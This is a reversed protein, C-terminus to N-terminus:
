MKNLVSMLQKVERQLSHVSDRLQTERFEKADRKSAQLVKKKNKKVLREHDAENNRYSSVIYNAVPKFDGGGNKDKGKLVLVGEGKKKLGAKLVVEGKDHDVRVESVGINEDDGIYDSAFQVENIRDEAIRFHISNLDITKGPVQDACEVELTSTTQSPHKLGFNLAEHTFGLGTKAVETPINRCHEDVELCVIRFEFCEWYRSLDPTIVSTSFTYKGKVPLSITFSVEDMGPSYVVMRTLHMCTDANIEGSGEIFSLKYKFKVDKLVTSPCGVTIRCRGKDSIMQCADVTLLTMGTVFFGPQLFACKKFDNENKVRESSVYQFSSEEPFAHISFIRPHTCFWFENFIAETYGTNATQTQFALNGDNELLIEGGRRYGKVTSVALETYVLHWVNNCRFSNWVGQLIEKNSGPEYTIDKAKGMILQCEINAASCLEMFTGPLFSNEDVLSCMNHPLDRRRRRDSMLSMWVLISRAMYLDRNPDGRAIAEEFYRILGNENTVARNQIQQVHGDCKTFSISAEDYTHVTPM